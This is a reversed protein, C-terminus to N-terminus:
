QSGSQLSPNSPHSSMDRCTCKKELDVINVVNIKYMREINEYAPTYTCVCPPMSPPWAMRISPQPTSPLKGYQITALEQFSSQPSLPM